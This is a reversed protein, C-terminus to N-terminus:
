RDDDHQLPPAHVLAEREPELVRDLLERAALLVRQDCIGRPKPGEHTPESIPSLPRMATCFMGTTSRRSQSAPPAVRSRKTWVTPLASASMPKKATCCWPM